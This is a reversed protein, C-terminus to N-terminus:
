ASVLRLKPANRELYKALRRARLPSGRLYGEALNCRQCLVGRVQGTAHDHDVHVRKVELDDGCSACRGSQSAIMEELQVLTLGYKKRLLLAANARSKREKVEPMSRYVAARAAKRAKRAPDADAARNRVQQCTRCRGDKYRDVAGCRACPKM